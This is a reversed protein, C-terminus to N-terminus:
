RPRELVHAQRRRGGGEMFRWLTSHSMGLLGAMERTSAGRQNAERLLLRFDREAAEVTQKAVLLAAGLTQGNPSISRGLSPARDQDTM